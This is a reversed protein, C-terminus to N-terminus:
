AYRACSVYRFSANSSMREYMASSRIVCVSSFAHHDRHAVTGLRPRREFLLRQRMRTSQEAEGHPEFPVARVSLVHNLVRHDLRQSREMPKLWAGVTTGPKHGDQLPDDALSPSPHPAGGHDLIWVVADRVAHRKHCWHSLLKHVLRHQVGQSPQRRSELLDDN